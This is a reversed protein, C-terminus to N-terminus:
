DFGGAGGEPTPPTQYFQRAGGEYNFININLLPLPCRCSTFSRSNM